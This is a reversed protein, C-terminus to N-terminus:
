PHSNGEVQTTWHDWEVFLRITQQFVWFSRFSKVILSKLCVRVHSWYHGSSEPRVIQSYLLTPLVCAVPDYKAACEIKAALDELNAPESLSNYPRRGSTHWEPRIPHALVVCPRARGL